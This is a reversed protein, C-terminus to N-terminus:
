VGPPSAGLDVEMQCELYDVVESPNMDLPTATRSRLPSWPRSFEVFSHQLGAAVYEDVRQGRPTISRNDGGAARMDRVTWGLRHALQWRYYTSARAKHIRNALLELEGTMRRPPPLARARRRTRPAFQPLLAFLLGLVLLSWKVFQPIMLYSLRAVWWVYSLPIILLDRAFDRVLYALVFTLAVVTSLLFKWRGLM